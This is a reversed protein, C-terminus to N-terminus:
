YEKGEAQLVEKLMQKYELDAPLWNDENKNIQFHRGKEKM